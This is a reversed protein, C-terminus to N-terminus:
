KLEMVDIADITAHDSRYYRRMKASEDEPLRLLSTRGGSTAGAGIESWLGPTGQGCRSSNRYRYRVEYVTGSELDVFEQIIRGLLVISDPNGFEGCSNIWSGQPSLTRIQFDYARSEGAEFVDFFIAGLETNTGIRPVVTPAGPTGIEVIRWTAQGSDGSDCVFSLLGTTASTFTLQLACEGGYQGDDYTQTLIGTNSGTNSYSYSGPLVGDESFRGASVFDVYFGDAAGARLSKGVMQSNFTDEDPPAFGVPEVPEVPAFGLAIRFPTVLGATVLDEVQSGDLNARQIKNTGADTWYIKGDAVDLAIDYPEDM